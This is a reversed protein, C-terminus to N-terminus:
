SILSFIKHKAIAQQYPPFKKVTASMSLFFRDLEDPEASATKRKEEILYTMLVSSATAQVEEIKRKKNRRTGTSSRQSSEASNKQRSNLEGVTTSSTTASDTSAAAGSTIAAADYINVTPSQETEVNEVVETDSDEEDSSINLSTLSKREAFFPTLFSM